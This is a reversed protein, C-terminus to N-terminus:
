CGIHQKHVVCWKSAVNVVLVVKGKLDELKYPSGNPLDAKLDYFGRSTSESMNTPASASFHAQQSQTNTSVFAFPSVLLLTSRTSPLSRALVVRHIPTYISRCSRARSLVTPRSTRFGSLRM